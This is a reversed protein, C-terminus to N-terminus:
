GLQTRATFVGLDNDSTDKTPRKVGWGPVLFITEKGPGRPKDTGVVSNAVYGGAATLVQKALSGFSMGSGTSSASDARSPPAALMKAVRSPPRKQALLELQQEQRQQAQHTSFAQARPQARTRPVPPTQALLARQPVPILASRSSAWSGQRKEAHYQDILHTTKQPIPPPRRSSSASPYSTSGASSAASNLAGVPGRATTPKRSPRPPINPKLPMDSM